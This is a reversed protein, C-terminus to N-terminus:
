RVSTMAALILFSTKWSHGRARLQPPEGPRLRKYIEVLADEQSQTNDKELTIKLFEDDDYNELIEENTSYGLARILVTVPLKRTRDIRVHICDHSDSEFEIWAGRNPIVTASYIRKGSADSAANYYVGPSRVLQSVVVREAGNIIFTGKDTMLPFDGMFVEQEKIEGTERNTLRVKARLPAAFTVDREKCEAVSYKPEGLSYDLFELSLNGTFDQIPSVDHFTAKLGEKLFWEHSQKQIEIMNPMELVESIRGFSLRVKEGVQVPKPNIMYM